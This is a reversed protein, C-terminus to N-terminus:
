QNGPKADNSANEIYGAGLLAQVIVEAKAQDCDFREMIASQRVSSEGIFRLFDRVKILRVGAITEDRGVQM